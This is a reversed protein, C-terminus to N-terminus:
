PSVLKLSQLFHVTNPDKEVGPHGVVVAQVLTADMMFFKHVLVLDNPADIVLQRGAFNGVTVQEESRLHGHVNEVAGDRAGDLISPVPKGRVRDPPYPIYMSLYARGDTEISVMYGKVSGIATEINKVDSTWQGPMELAFGVGPPRYEVWTQASARVPIALFAIVFLFVVRRLMGDEM